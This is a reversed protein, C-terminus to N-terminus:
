FKELLSGHLQCVRGKCVVEYLDNGLAKRIIGSDHSKPSGRPPGNEKDRIRVWENEQFRLESNEEGEVSPTYPRVKNLIREKFKRWSKEQKSDLYWEIINDDVFRLGFSIKEQETFPSGSNELTSFVAEIRYVWAHPHECNLKLEMNQIERSIILSRDISKIIRLHTEAGNPATLDQLSEQFEIIIQGSPKPSDISESDTEKSM